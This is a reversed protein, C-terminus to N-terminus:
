RNGLAHRCALPAFTSVQYVPIRNGPDGQEQFYQHLYGTANDVTERWITVFEEKAEADAEARLCRMQYQCLAMWLELYDTPSQFGAALAKEFVGKVDTYTAGRRECAAMYGIWLASVWPCNRVARQYARDM